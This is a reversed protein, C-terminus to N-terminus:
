QLIGMGFHSKLLTAFYSKQFWVEAHTNEQLNAAYKWFVKLVGKGLFVDPHSSRFLATYSM